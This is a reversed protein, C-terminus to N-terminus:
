NSFVIIWPIKKLNITRPIYKTSKFNRDKIRELIAYLYDIDGCKRPINLM